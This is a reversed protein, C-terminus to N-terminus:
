QLGTSGDHMACKTTLTVVNVAAFVTIHCFIVFFLTLHLTFGVQKKDRPRAVDDDVEDKLEDYTRKVPHKTVTLKAKVAKLVLPDTRVYESAKKANGHPLVANPFAGLYEVVCLDCGDM